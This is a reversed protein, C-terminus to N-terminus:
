ISVFPKKGAKYRFPTKDRKCLLNFNVDKLVKLLRKITRDCRPYGKKALEKSIQDITKWENSCLICMLAFVIKIQTQRDKEKTNIM